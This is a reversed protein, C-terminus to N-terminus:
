SSTSIQMHNKGPPLPLSPHSLSTPPSVLLLHSFPIVFFEKQYM